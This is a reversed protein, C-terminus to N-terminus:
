QTGAEEPGGLRAPQGPEVREQGQPGQEVILGVASFGFYNRDVRQQNPEVQSGPDPRQNREM